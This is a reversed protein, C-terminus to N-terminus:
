FQAGLQKQSFDTGRPSDAKAPIPGTAVAERNM